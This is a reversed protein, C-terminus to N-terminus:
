YGNQSRALSIKLLHARAMFQKKAINRVEKLHTSLTIVRNHLAMDLFYLTDSYTANEASLQLMQADVASVPRVRDDVSIEKQESGQQQIEQIFAKIDMLGQDAVRHQEELTVKADQLFKMQTELRKESLVLRQQNMMAFQKKQQVNRSVETLYSYIKTRVAEKTVAFNKADWEEQAARQLAEEEELQRREAELRSEEMALHEQVQLVADRESPSQTTTLPTPHHVHNNNANYSHYPLSNSSTPYGPLAPPPPTIPRPAPTSRTFVPPEASFVSSMAVVLEILSHTNSNWEYLYPLSVLGDRGVHPHNEKFYMSPLALRVYCVPPRVPYGPPLYVDMLQQYEKGKFLIGITGQLCLTNSMDGNSEVLSSIKPTLHKGVGSKLLDSADRDVRNPDRYLGGLQKMLPALRTDSVM